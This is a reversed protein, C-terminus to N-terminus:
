ASVLGRDALDRWLADPIEVAMRLANERMESPDASGVVVTRVAPDRLSYQLAATPLEVGHEVCVAAIRRARDLMAPPVAGYEFHADARPEATALLGSNFVGAAVIGVGRDLCLASLETRASTDLLTYRNSVMVLDIDSDIVASRLIGIDSTGVGVARVLGDDRLAALADLAAPIDSRPGPYQEPDHLYLIDVADRGLRTLSDDLSQRIGDASYDWVRRATAPVHFWTDDPEDAREPTPELLRGVKTSILFENRPRGALFEGIRRESLGLGYHPSTDIYRIGLDLASELTAAATADDVANFLNGLSAGGLSLRGVDLRDSDLRDSVPAM